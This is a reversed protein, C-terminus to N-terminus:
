TKTRTEETTTVGACAAVEVARKEDCRWRFRRTYRHLAATGRSDDRSM